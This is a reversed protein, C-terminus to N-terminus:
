GHITIKGEDVLWQLSEALSLDDTMDTIYDAALTALSPKPAVYPSLTNFEHLIYEGDCEVVVLGASDPIPTVMTFTNGKTDVVVDNEKFQHVKRAKRVIMNDSRIILKDTPTAWSTGGNISFEVEDSIDPTLKGTEIAFLFFQKLVRDYNLPNISTEMAISFDGNIYRIFHPEDVNSRLPTGALELLLNAQDKDAVKTIIKM